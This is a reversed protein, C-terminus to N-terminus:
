AFVYQAILPKGDFTFPRAFKSAIAHHRAKTKVILGMDGDIVKKSPAGIEWEGNYKAISDEVDDKKGRSRIWKKDLADVDEFWDVLLPSGTVTPRVFKPAVYVPKEDDGKDEALILVALLLDFVLPLYHGKM